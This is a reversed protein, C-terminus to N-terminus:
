KNFDYKKNTGINGPDQLNSLLLVKNPNTEVTRNQPIKCVAFIEQPSKNNSIKKCIDSTVLIKDLYKFNDLIEFTNKDLFKQTFLMSIIEVNNQVAENIIKMGELVFLNKEQRYKKEAMLKCIDKIRTNTKSTILEMFLEEV